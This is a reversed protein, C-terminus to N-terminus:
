FNIKVTYFAVNLIREFPPHGPPGHAFAVTYFTNKNLITYFNCFVWHRPWFNGKPRSVYNTTSQFSIGTRFVKTLSALYKYTCFLQKRFVSLISCEKLM